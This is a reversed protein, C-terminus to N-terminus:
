MQGDDCVVETIGFLYILNSEHEYVHVQISYQNDCTLMSPPTPPHSHNQAVIIGFLYLREINM